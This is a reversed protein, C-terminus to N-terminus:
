LGMVPLERYSHLSVVVIVFSSLRKVGLLSSCTVEGELILVNDLLCTILISLNMLYSNKEQDFLFIRM